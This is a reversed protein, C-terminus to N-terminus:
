DLLVKFVGDAPDSYFVINIRTRLEDAFDIVSRGKPDTQLVAEEIM